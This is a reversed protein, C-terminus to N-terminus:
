MELERDHLWADYMNRRLPNLLVEKADNVLSMMDALEAQSMDGDLLARDPHYRSAMMRYAKKIEQHNSNRPIGLVQYHDTMIEGGFDIWFEEFDDDGGGGSRGRPADDDVYFEFRSERRKRYVVVAIASLLIVLIVLVVIILFGSESDNERRPEGTITGLNRVSDAMVFIDIEIKEISPGTITLIKQGMGSDLSFRGYGDTFTIPEGEVEVQLGKM